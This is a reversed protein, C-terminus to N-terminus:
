HVAGVSAQRRHISVSYLSFVYNPWLWPPCNKKKGDMCKITNNHHLWGYSVYNLTQETPVGYHLTALWVIVTTNTRRNLPNTRRHVISM